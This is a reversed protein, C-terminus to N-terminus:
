LNLWEQPETGITELVRKWRTEISADVESAGAQLLCGGPSISSDEIIQTGTQSFQESLYAKVNDADAPNMRLIVHSHHLPLMAIAEQIVPLLVDTKASISGRTIQAATEMALALLQEAISQDVESLAHELNSILAAFAQAKSEITELALKEGASQGEALGAAYGSARAEEHIRELEDVTPLTFAPPAVDPIVAEPIPATIPIPPEVVPKRDSVGSEWRQFTFLKEKVNTM